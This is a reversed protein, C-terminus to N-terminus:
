IIIFIILKANAVTSNNMNKVVIRLHYFSDYYKSNDIEGYITTYINDTGDNKSYSGTYLQLYAKAGKALASYGSSNTSHSWNTASYSNSGSGTNRKYYDVSEMLVWRKNSCGYWYLDNNNRGGELLYIERMGVVNVDEIVTDCRFYTYITLSKNLAATNGRFNIYYWYSNAYYSNFSDDSLNTKDNSKESESGNTNKVDKGYGEGTFTVVGKQINIGLNFTYTSLKNDYSPHYPYYNDPAKFTYHNVTVIEGGTTGLIIFADNMNDVPNDSRSGVNEIDDTTSSNAEKISYAYVKNKGEEIEDAEDGDWDIKATEVNEGYLNSLDVFNYKDRLYVRKGFFPEFVIVTDDTFSENNFPIDNSYIFDNDPYYYEGSIPNGNISVLKWGAFAQEYIDDILATPTWGYFDGGEKDNYDALLASKQSVKYKSTVLVQSEGNQYIVNINFDNPEEAKVSVGSITIFIVFFVIFCIAIQKMIHLINSHIKKNNM